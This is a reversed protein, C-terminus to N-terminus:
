VFLRNELSLGKKLTKYTLQNKAMLEFLQIELGKTIIEPSYEILLEDPQKLETRIVGEIYGISNVFGNDIPTQFIVTLYENADQSVLPEDRTLKGKELYLLHSCIRELESLNHSSILFTVESKLAQICDRVKLANKPDLGATPEDLLVFDPKGILAQAISVRKSMGHSLSEPKAKVVESLDVWELVKLVENNAEAKSMGQLRALYNLQTGINFGADLVADQPLAGITTKTAQGQDSFHVHGSSPQIFGCILSILTTKGAGNEGVLAIPEGRCIEFSVNDVALQSGYQKSLGDCKLLLSM